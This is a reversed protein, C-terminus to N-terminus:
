KTQSTIRQPDGHPASPRRLLRRFPKGIWHWLDAFFVRMFPYPDDFCYLQFTVRGFYSKIWGALSWDGTRRYESLAVADPKFYSYKINNRQVPKEPLAEGLVDLYCIYPLNVGCVLPLQNWSSTRANIELLIYKKSEPDQKFQLLALGFYGSKRLIDVSINVLEQNFDSIVFCGIGAYAPYTRIKRGVFYGLAEGDRGMHVHVSILQDDRGPIYEQVIMRNDYVAISEFLRVLEEPTEIVMAKKSQVMKKVVPMNWAEPHLPKIIVPFDVKNAVERIGLNADPTYTAAIPFSHRRGFEFFRSKDLFTDVVEKSPITLYYHKELIERHNSIFELDPDATPFLVPRFAQKKAYEVLENLIEQPKLSFSDVLISQDVYKSYLAHAAHNETVFVTRVGERGLSRVMGLDGQDGGKCSLVVACHTHKKASIPM